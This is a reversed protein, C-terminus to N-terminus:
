AGLVPYRRRIRRYRVTMWYREENSRSDISSKILDAPSILLEGRRLGQHLLLIFVTYVRWRSVGRRFPNSTSDPDLLEYLFEVVSSPLSSVREPRKKGSVHLQSNIVQLRMLRDRLENIGRSDSGLAFRETMETVFQVARTGASRRHRLQRSTIVFPLTIGRWHRASYRWTWTPWRMM